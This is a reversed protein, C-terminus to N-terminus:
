PAETNALVDWDVTQSLVLGGQLELDVRLTHSGSGLTTGAIGPCRLTEGTLPPNLTGRRRNVCAWLPVSIDRGDFSATLGVASVATLTVLTIDLAQTTVYTGSPPSIFMASALSRASFRDFGLGFLGAQARVGEFRISYIDAVARDFFWPTAVGNGTNADGATLVVTDIVNGAQDRAEITFTEGGDLDLIVGSAQSSPPDYTVILPEAALGTVQGDDTLFFRGIDQGAVPLDDAGGVGEFATRPSGVRALVPLDGNELAFTVGDSAAFQDGIALGEVPTAGPITEFDIDALAPTSAVFALALLTFTRM